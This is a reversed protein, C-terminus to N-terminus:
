RARRRLRHTPSRANCATSEDRLDPVPWASHGHGPCSRTLVKRRSPGQGMGLPRRLPRGVTHSLAVWPPRHAGRSARPDRRFGSGRPVGRGCESRRAPGGPPSLPVLAARDGDVVPLRGGRAATATSIAGGSIPQTHCVLRRRRLHPRHELDRHRNHTGRGAKERPLLTAAFAAAHASGLRQVDGSTRRVLLLHLLQDRQHIAHRLGRRM